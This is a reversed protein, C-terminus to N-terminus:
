PASRESDNAGGARALIWRRKELIRDVDADLAALVEAARLEGRVAAEAYRSITRAIREWEPIQPTSKVNQLQTWFAAAYRNEALAPDHWASRRAPLDGTMRYLEVQRAPESLFEIVRLAAEKRQSGRFVALSAGGAISVGPYRDGSGPMPATSWKGSMVPPLRREFEGINWPGSVYLAFTGRAFDQYLNAIQAEGLRLALGRRFLDLYFDFASRFQESQFNGYRGGDRLLEAGRELALAVLTQWDSVPLLLAYNDPGVAAKIREMLELWVEWTRPPGPAGVRELLDTRHFLLRTDVYWPVAYLRGDIRNTDLIGGFQDDLGFASAVRPELPEVAGLAVFEPLWTNGAQFLDPMAGGVYATLLKEHAASWPIQQVRVRVGPNRREFEPLLRQVEEGERGMAWFEVVDPANVDSRCASAVVALTLLVAVGNGLRLPATGAGQDIPRRDVMRGM